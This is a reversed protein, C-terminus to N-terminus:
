WLSGKLFSTCLKRWAERDPEGEAARARMAEAYEATICKKAELREILHLLIDKTYEPHGQIGMAHEGYRFMEVGTKGSKGMVEAKLPLETVEDQHCEIVQLSAPLKFSSLQKSPPLMEITTVGIDWGTASRGTKGGLARCLIQHGFCVGLIKKKMEVLRRLLGLLQRIWPDDGHADNCSGTLVFGDVARIEEEGPFEGAAVRYVAWADGEEGLLSVFVGFYGGYKRKVHESDEACLLVAYRRGRAPSVGELEM